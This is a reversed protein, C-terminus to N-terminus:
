ALFAAPSNPGNMGTRVVLPGTLLQVLELLRATVAPDSGKSAKSLETLAETMHLLTNLSQSLRPMCTTSSSATGGTSGSSNNGRAVNSRGAASGRSSDVSTGVGTDGSTNGVNTAIDLATSSNWCGRLQVSDLSFGGTTESLSAADYGGTATNHFLKDLTWFTDKALQLAGQDGTAQAYASLGFVAFANGYVNAGANPVVGERTTEHVFLRGADAVAAARFAATATARGLKVYAM